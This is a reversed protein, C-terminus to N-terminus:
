VKESKNQEFKLKLYNLNKILLFEQLIIIFISLAVILKGSDLESLCSTKQLRTDIVNTISKCYFYYINLTSYM